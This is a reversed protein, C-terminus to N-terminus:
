GGDGVEREVLFAIAMLIARVGRGVSWESGLPLSSQHVSGEDPSCAVARLVV